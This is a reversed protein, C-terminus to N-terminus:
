FKLDLLQVASVAVASVITLGYITAPIVGRKKVFYIPAVMAINAAIFPWAAHNRCPLILLSVSAVTMLIFYVNIRSARTRMSHAMGMYAGVSLFFILVLLSVLVMRSIDMELPLYGWDYTMQGVIFRPLSLFRGGTFWDIYCFSAIPILLAALGVVGERWNRRFLGLGVPLAIWLVVSQPWILPMAGLALGANFLRSFCMQRRFSDILYYSGTIYLVVCLMIGPDAYVMYLGCSVIAFFTIPQFSRVVFVMNRSAIRALWVACVLTLFIYLGSAFWFAGGEPTQWFALHTYSGGDGSLPAVVARTWFLLMLGTFILCASGLSQRTVDPKM